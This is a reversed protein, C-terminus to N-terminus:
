ATQFGVVGVQLLLQGVAAHLVFAEGGLDFFLSLRLFFFEGQEVFGTVGEAATELVEGVLDEFFFAATEAFLVAFLEAQQEVREVFFEAAEGLEHLVGVFFFGFFAVGEFVFEFAQLLEVAAQVFVGGGEGAGEGAAAVFGLAVPAFHDQLAHEFM